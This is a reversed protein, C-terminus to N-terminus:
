SGFDVYKLAYNVLQTPLFNALFINCDNLLEQLKSKGVDSKLDLTIVEKNQSDFQFYAIRDDDSPSMFRAPDGFPAEIKLVEVGLDALVARELTGEVTAGLL